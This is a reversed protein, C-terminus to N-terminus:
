LYTMFVLHRNITNKLGNEFHFVKYGGTPKYHQINLEFM